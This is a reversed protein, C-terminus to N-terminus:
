RRSGPRASKGWGTRWPRRTRRHAAPPRHLEGHKLYEDDASHPRIDVWKWDEGPWQKARRGLKDAALSGLLAPDLLCARRGDDSFLDRRLPGGARECAKVAVHRALPDVDPETEVRTLLQRLHERRRSRTPLGAWAQEQRQHDDVPALVM